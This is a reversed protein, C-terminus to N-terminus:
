FIKFYLQVLVWISAAFAFILQAATPLNFYVPTVVIMLGLWILGMIIYFSCFFLYLKEISGIEMSVVSFIIITSILAIGIAILFPIRNKLNMQVWLEKIKDKVGM